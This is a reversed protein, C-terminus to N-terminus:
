INHLQVNPNTWDPSDQNVNVTTSSFSHYSTPVQTYGVTYINTNKDKEFQKHDLLWRIAIFASLQSSLLGIIAIDIQSVVSAIFIIKKSHQVFSVLNSYVELEWKKFELIQKHYPNYTSFTIIPWAIDNLFVESINLCSIYTILSFYRVSNNISISVFTFDDSWGFRFYTSKGNNFIFFCSCMTFLFFANISLSLNLIFKKDM